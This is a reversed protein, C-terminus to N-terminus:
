RLRGMEYRGTRLWDGIVQAARECQAVDDGCITLLITSIAMADSARAMVADLHRIDRDIARAQQVSLTVPGPRYGTETPERLAWPDQFIEESYISSDPAGPRLRVVDGM